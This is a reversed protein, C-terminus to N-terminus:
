HETTESKREFLSCLNSSEHNEKMLAVYEAALLKGIQAILESEAADPHESKVITVPGNM